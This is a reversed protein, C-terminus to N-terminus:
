VSFARLGAKPVFQRDQLPATESGRLRYYQGTGTRIASYLVLLRSANVALSITSM